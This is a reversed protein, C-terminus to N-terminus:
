GKLKHYQRNAEIRGEARERILEEVTSKNNNIQAYATYIGLGNKRQIEKLAEKDARSKKLQAQFRERWEVIAAIYTERSNFQM